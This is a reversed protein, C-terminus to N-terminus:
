SAQEGCSVKPNFPAFVGAPNRRETWVHLTWAELHDSADFTVGLLEPPTEHQWAAYPILWEVAVFRLGGDPQPEYLIIEPQLPLAEGDFLAMNGYHFGMGGAPSSVCPSLQAGYGAAEANAFNRFPRTTHRLDRLWHRIEKSYKQEAAASLALEQQEVDLFESETADTPSDTCAGAALAITLAAVAALHGRGHDPQQAM